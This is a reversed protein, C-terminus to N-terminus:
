SQACRALRAQCSIVNSSKFDRHIVRANHAASLAAAMQAVIPQAEGESFPGARRLRAALTEGPLLEMAVLPLRRVHGYANPPFEHHFVDFIRCVNPHTVRRSLNVERIFRRVTREDQAIGPRMTKLAVHEVLEIDKAEYVEGMGGRAIFRIIRFRGAITDGRRFMTGGPSEASMERSLRPDGTDQNQHDGDMFARGGFHHV